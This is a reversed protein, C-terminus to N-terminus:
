FRLFSLLSLNSNHVLELIFFYINTKSEHHKSAILSFHKSVVERHHENSLKLFNVPDKDYICM